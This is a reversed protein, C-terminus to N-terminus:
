FSGGMLSSNWWSSGKVMVDWASETKQAFVQDRLSSRRMKQVHKRRSLSMTSGRGADFLVQWGRTVSGEGDLQETECQRYGERSVRDKRNWWAKLKRVM